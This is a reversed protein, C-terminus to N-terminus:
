ILSAYALTAHTGVGIELLTLMHPNLELRAFLEGVLKLLTTRTM